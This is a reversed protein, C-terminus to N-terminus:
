SINNLNEIATNFSITIQEELFTKNELLADLLNQKSETLDNGRNIYHDLLQNYQIQHKKITEQRNFLEIQKELLTVHDKTMREEQNFLDLQKKIENNENILMEEEKDIAKIQEKTAQIMLQNRNIEGIYVEISELINSYYAIAKELPNKEEIYGAMEM